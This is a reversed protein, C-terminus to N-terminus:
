QPVEVLLDHLVQLLLPDVDVEELRGNSALRWARVCTPSIIIWNVRWVRMNELDSLSPECGAKHSHVIAEPEGLETLLKATIIPDAVFANDDDSVNPVEFLVNDYVFWIRERM